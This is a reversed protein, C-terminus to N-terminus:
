AGITDMFCCALPYRVITGGTKMVVPVVTELNRPQPPEERPEISIQRGLVEPDRRYVVARPGATASATSLEPLWDVDTVFANNKLFYELVTSDAGPSGIRKQTIIQFQSPPLLLTDVTEVGNTVTFPYNVLDFLDKLIQDATKNAWYLATGGGGPDHATLIPINPNSLFGPVNTGSDGFLAVRQLFEEAVRFAVDRKASSLDRSALRAAEIEDLHYGYSTSALKLPSEREFAKVDARPLNDAYGHVMAAIGFGDFGIWRVHTAGPAAQESDAPILDRFKIAARKVTYTKSQLQKLQNLLFASNDADLHAIAM